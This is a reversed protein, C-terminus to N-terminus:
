TLFRKHKKKYRDIIVHYFYVDTIVFHSGTNGFYTNLNCLLIFTVFLIHLVTCEM